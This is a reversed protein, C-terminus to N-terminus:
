GRFNTANDAQNDRTKRVILTQTAFSDNNGLVTLNRKVLLGGKTRKFSALMLNFEGKVKWFMRLVIM